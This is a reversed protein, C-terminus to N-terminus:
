FMFCSFSVFIKKCFWRGGRPVLSWPKRARILCTSLSREFHVYDFCFQWVERCCWWCCSSCREQTEYHVLMQGMDHEGLLWHTLGFACLGKVWFCKGFFCSGFFNFDRAEKKNHIENPNQNTSTQTITESILESLLADIESGHGRFSDSWNLYRLIQNDIQHGLLKNGRSKSTLNTAAWKM